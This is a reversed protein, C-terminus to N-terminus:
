EYDDEFEDLDDSFDEGLDISTDVGFKNTLESYITYLDNLCNIMADSLTFLSKLLADTYNKLIFNVNLIKNINETRDESELKFYTSTLKDFIKNIKHYKEELDDNIKEYDNIYDEIIKIWGYTIEDYEEIDIFDLKNKYGSKVHRMDNYSKIDSLSEFKDIITQPVGNEIWTTYNSIFIDYYKEVNEIMIKQEPIVEREIIGGMLITLKHKYKIKEGKALKEKLRKNKFEIFKTKLKRIKNKLPKLLKNLVRQVNDAIYKAWRMLTHIITRFKSEENIVEIGTSEFIYDCFKIQSYENLLDIRDTYNM